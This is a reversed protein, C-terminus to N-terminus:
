REVGIECPQGRKENLNGLGLYQEVVGLPQGPPCLTAPYLHAQFDPRLHNVHPLQERCNQRLRLLGNFMDASEDALVGASPTM